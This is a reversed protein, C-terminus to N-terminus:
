STLGLMLPRGHCHNCVVSRSLQPPFRDTFAARRRVATQLLPALCHGGIAAASPPGHYRHCVATRSLPPPCRGRYCRCVATRLSTASLPEQCRHCVATRLLSLPCCDAITAVPLSGRHRLGAAWLLASSSLRSM